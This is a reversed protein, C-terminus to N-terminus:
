GCSTTKDKVIQYLSCLRELPLELVFTLANTIQSSMDEFPWNPKHCEPMCMDGIEINKLYTVQITTFQATREVFRKAVAIAQRNKKTWITENTLGVKGRECLKWFKNL